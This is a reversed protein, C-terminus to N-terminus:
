HISRELSPGGRGIAGILRPDKEEARRIAEEVLGPFPDLPNLKLALRNVVARGAATLKDKWGWRSQGERLWALIQESHQRCGQVGWEDMQVARAHCDCSPAPNIGLTALVAKLETGPGRGIPWLRIPKAPRDSELCSLVTLGHNASTHYVIAWEPKESVLRRVASLLGAQGDDGRLGYIQTDHLVIFRSVSAAHRQFEAWLQAANHKTDIFLLDCPPITASLSDGSRFEFKTRGCHEQLQPLNGPPRPAYTIFRRPQGALLAVTSVEPRHGFEVVAECQSSLERLKSCHENIDSKTAAARQFLEELVRGNGNAAPIPPKTPLRIPYREPDSVIADWVAPDIRGGGANPQTPDECYNEVFHRRVRDLPYGLERMGLVYNRVKGETSRVYQRGGAPDAFRHMWKLWPLCLCQRGAQRFKEHIYWEEGGFERFHPNFGLWAARRSAFLGLGQAPIPFPDDSLSALRFGLAILHPEHGAWVIELTDIPENTLLDFLEVRHDVTERPSVLRGAPDSWATGWTGWMGARWVDDFHTPAGSLDDMVLPGQLLDASEPHRDFYDLLRAIGDPWIQVHSDIVLVGDGTAKQFILDRPASTGQAEDLPVYQVSYPQPLERTTRERIREQAAAGHRVKDLFDRLRSAQPGDPDNDVVLFECRDLVRAHYLRLANLTFYVGDFDRYTAMGITLRFSCM